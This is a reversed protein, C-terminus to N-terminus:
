RYRRYHKTSMDIYFLKSNINKSKFDSYTHLLQLFFLKNKVFKKNDCINNVSFTKDIVM